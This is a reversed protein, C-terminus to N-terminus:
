PVCPYRIQYSHDNIGSVLGYDRNRSMTLRRTFRYRILAETKRQKDLFGLSMSCVAISAVGFCSRKPLARHMAGFESAGPRDGCVSGATWNRRVGQRFVLLVDSLGSIRQQWRM